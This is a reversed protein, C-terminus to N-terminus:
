FMHTHSGLTHSNTLSMAHGVLIAIILFLSLFLHQHPHLSVPVSSMCQQHSHLILCRFCDSLEEFFNFKSDPFSGAIGSRPVSGFSIFVCM